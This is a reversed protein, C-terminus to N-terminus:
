AYASGIRDGVQDTPPFTNWGPADGSGLRVRQRAGAAELEDDGGWRGANSYREFM